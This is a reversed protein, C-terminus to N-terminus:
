RRDQNLFFREIMPNQRTPNQGSVLHIQGRRGTETVTDLKWARAMWM